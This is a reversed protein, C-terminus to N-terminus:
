TRSACRTPPAFQATPCAATGPAGDAHVAAQAVDNACELYKRDRRGESWRARRLQGAHQEAILKIAAADLWGDLLHDRLTNGGAHLDNWSLVPSTAIIGDYDDPFRQPAM